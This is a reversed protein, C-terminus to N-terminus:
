RIQGSPSAANPSRGAQRLTADPQAALRAEAEQWKRLMEDPDEFNLFIPAEAPTVRTAMGAIRWGDTQQRLAWVIEYSVSGNQQDQETWVSSVHAGRKDSTLYEAKGISFSATPTGPPQVALNRKATEERAKTTLLSETLLDDGERLAKLFADVAMEPSKDPLYPAPATQAVDRAPAAALDSAASPESTPGAANPTAPTSQGCGAVLMSALGVVLLNVFHRM